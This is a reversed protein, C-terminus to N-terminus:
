DLTYDVDESFSVELLEPNKCLYDLIKISKAFYFGDAIREDATVAIDVITREVETDGVKVMKKAITGITMMISNTGYNNLHHYVAPCKISGLNSLLLTSFAPDGHTLGKPVWGWKDLWRIFAVIPILILRPLKAFNNVTHDVGKKKPKDTKRVEKVEGLVFAKVNDVNDDARATYTVLAEEAQDNFMRKAVFSVSIFDREYIRGTRVFRNLYPRQNIIRVMMTIICHFLKLKSDSPNSENRKDIYKMLDTIDLEKRLCVECDTRNPYLHSMIINLGPVDKVWHGDKRDGWRRKRKEFFSM